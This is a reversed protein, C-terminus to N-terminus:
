NAMASENTAEESIFPHSQRAKLILSDCMAAFDRQPIPAFGYKSRTQWEWCALVNAYAKHRSDHSAGPYELYIRQYSKQTTPSGGGKVVLLMKEMMIPALTAATEEIKKAIKAESKESGCRVDLSELAKKVDNFCQETTM